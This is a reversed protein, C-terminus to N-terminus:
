SIRFYIYKKIGKIAKIEKFCLFLNRRAYTPDIKIEAKHFLSEYICIAYFVSQTESYELKKRVSLDNSISPQM